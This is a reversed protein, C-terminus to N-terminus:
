YLKFLRWVLGKKQVPCTELSALLEGMEGPRM